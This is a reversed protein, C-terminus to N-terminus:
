FSLVKVTKLPISNATEEARLQAGLCTPFIKMYDLCPELIRKMKAMQNALCGVFDKIVLVDIMSIQVKDEKLCHLGSDKAVCM